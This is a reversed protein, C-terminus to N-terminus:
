KYPLSEHQIEAGLQEFEPDKHLLKANNLIAYAAILADAFSCRYGSKIRAATLLIPEDIEWLIKVPLQKVVAYRYDAEAEGHERRTIYNLELLVIWPVLIDGRRLINEVRHAGPEDNILTILASTDLLYVEPKV